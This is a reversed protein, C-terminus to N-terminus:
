FPVTPDPPPVPETRARTAERDMEEQLAKWAAIGAPHDGYELWATPDADYDAACAPCLGGGEVAYGPPALEPRDILVGAADLCRCGPEVCRAVLPRHICNLGSEHRSV